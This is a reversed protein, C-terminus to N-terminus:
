MRIFKETLERGPLRKAPDDRLLAWIDTARCEMEFRPNGKLASASAVIPLKARRDLERLLPEAGRRTGLLRAYDPLECALTDAQRFGLLAHTLMRSLRAHTYRKCKLAELLDKRTSTQRCLRYLRHELGEAMDPLAAMEQLSMERLRLMLMDDMAHAADPVAFPRAAEPLAERAARDEGREFAGRIASASAMGDLSLDYYDGQRLVAVPEMSLGLAEIARLYEVALITNPRNITEAPVGLMRSMAEGRARPYSLGRGLGCRIEGSLAEPERLSWLAIRRLMSLDQTECGFSLADVGISGLIAVGGRAFADAPRVADMAPLEFVADVGCALAMRARDWKSLLAPEGRQTFHGDMCAVVYDCGTLERTRRIHYAHGKHFPNYEAVVGAIRM